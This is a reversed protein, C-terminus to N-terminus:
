APQLRNGFELSRVYNRMFDFDPEGAASFPVSVVTDNVRAGWKRGFSFRPRNRDLVTTLFAAVEVDVEPHYAFKVTTTGVFEAFPVFTSYGVSGQGDCILAICPGPLILRENDPRAVMRVVGYDTRKAGVYPIDAGDRLLQQANGCRGPIVQEFLDALRIDQWPRGRLDLKGTSPASIPAFKVRARIRRTEERMFGWAPAGDSGTPLSIWERSLRRANIERGFNFRHRMSEIIPRLYLFLDEDLKVGPDALGLVMCHDSAVFDYPHFFCVGVTGSNTLTMRDRFVTMFDPPSVYAAIGNDRGSSSIYAVDGAAHDSLIWRDGREFTFIESFQFSSWNM